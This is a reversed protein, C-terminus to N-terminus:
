RNVHKIFKSYLEKNVIFQANNPSGREFICDAGQIRRIPATAIWSTTEKYDQLLYTELENIRSENFVTSTASASLADFAIGCDPCKDVVIRERKRQTDQGSLDVDSYGAILKGDRFLYISNEKVTENDREITLIRLRKTEDVYWAKGGTIVSFYKQKLYIGFLSDLSAIMSSEKEDETFVEKSYTRFAPTGAFSPNLASSVALTDSPHALTDQQGKEKQVPTCRLLLAVLFFLPITKM